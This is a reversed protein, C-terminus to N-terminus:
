DFQSSTSSYMKTDGTEKTFSLLMIEGPHTEPPKSNSGSRTPRIRAQVIGWGDLCKRVMKGPSTPNNVARHRKLWILHPQIPSIPMTGLLPFLGAKLSTDWAPAPSVPLALKVLM